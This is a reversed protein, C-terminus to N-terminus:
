TRTGRGTTARAVAAPLEEFASEKHLVELVGAAAADDVMGGGIYGSLLIVPLRPRIRALEAAVELGSMGPMSHDTVVLDVAEPQARIAHLAEDPDSYYQVLCGARELLALVVMGVVPDDDICIVRRGAANGAGPSAQAPAPTPVLLSADLAPLQVHFTSGRGPASDVTVSGGHEGVIGHVISLGLGTGQSPLRTTFFPEFIRERLSEGMGIGNDAVSLVAWKGGGPPPRTLTTGTDGPNAGSLTLTITIRGRGGELAHWANAGLNMLVQQLQPADALVIIPDDNLHVVIEVEAPLARRLLGITEEVLPRLALLETARPQGRGFALIQQVLQRARKGALVIQEVREHSPHGQDLTDLALSANGLITALINNFDHAIGGALTGLSELKQAQRVRAEALVRTTVAQHAVVARAPDCGELRSVNVMFWRQETPSHCPYHMEFTTRRGELVDRLGLAFESAESSNSGCASSCVTLYNAGVGIAQARADNDSGFASWAHNVAIIAGTADLVCIHATLGDLTAQSLQRARRLEDQALRHSTLDTALAM